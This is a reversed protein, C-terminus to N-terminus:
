SKKAMRALAHMAAIFGCIVGSAVSSIKSHRHYCDRARINSSHVEIVPGEFTVVRKM